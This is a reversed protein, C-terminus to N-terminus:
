RIVRAVWHNDCPLTPRSHQAVAEAECFCHQERMPRLDNLKFLLQRVVPLNGRDPAAGVNESSALLCHCTGCLRVGFM